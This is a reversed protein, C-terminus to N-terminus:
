DVIPQADWDILRLLFYKISLCMLKVNRRNVFLSFSVSRRTLHEEGHALRPIRIKTNLMRSISTVWANLRRKLDNKSIWACVSFPKLDDDAEDVDCVFASIIIIFIWRYFNFKHNQFRSSISSFVIKVHTQRMLRYNVSNWVMPFHLSYLRNKTCNKTQLQFCLLLISIKELMQWRFSSFTQRFEGSTCLQHAVSHAVCIVCESRSIDTSFSYGPVFSFCVLIVFFSCVSERTVGNMWM